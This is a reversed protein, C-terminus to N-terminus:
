ENYSRWILLLAMSFVVIATIFMLAIIVQLSSDNSQGYLKNVSSHNDYMIFSAIVLLMATWILILAQIM